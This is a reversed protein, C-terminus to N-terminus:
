PKYPLLSFLTLSTDSCQAELSVMQTEARQWKRLMWFDCWSSSLRWLLRPLHPCEDCVGELGQGLAVRLLNPFVPHTPLPPSYAKYWTGRLTLLSMYRGYFLHDLVTM